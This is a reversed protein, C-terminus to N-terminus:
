RVPRSPSLSQRPLLLAGFWMLAMAVVLGGALLWAWVGGLPAVLPLSTALLWGAAADVIDLWARVEGPQRLGQAVVMLGVAVMLGGAVVTLVSLGARVDSRRQWTPATNLELRSVTRAHFGSPVHVSVPRRLLAELAVLASWEAACAPCDGLHAGLDPPREGDLAADMLARAEMCQM